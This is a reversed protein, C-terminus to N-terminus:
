RVASHLTLRRAHVNRLHYEHPEWFLLHIFPHTVSGLVTERLAHAVLSLRRTRTTVSIFPLEAYLLETQPGGAFSPAVNLAYRLMRTYAGDMTDDFSRTSPWVGIAYTLIPEM